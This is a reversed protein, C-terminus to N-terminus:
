FDAANKYGCNHLCKCPKKVLQYGKCTAWAWRVSMGYEIYRKADCRDLASMIVKYPYPKQFYICKILNPVNNFGTPFYKKTNRSSSEWSKREEDLLRHLEICTNVILENSIDKRSM